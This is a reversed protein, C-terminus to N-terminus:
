QEMVFQNFEFSIDQNKKVLHTRALKGVIPDNLINTTVKKPVVKIGWIEDFANDRIFLSKKLLSNMVQEEKLIKSELIFRLFSVNELNTKEITDKAELLNKIASQYKKKIDWYKNMITVIKPFQEETLNLSAVFQDVRDLNHKRIFDSQQFPTFPCDKLFFQSYKQIIKYENSYTDKLDAFM